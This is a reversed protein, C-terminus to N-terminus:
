HWQPEPGPSPRVMWPCLVKAGTGPFLELRHWQGSSCLCLSTLVPGQAQRVQPLLLCEPCGFPALVVAQGQGGDRFGM